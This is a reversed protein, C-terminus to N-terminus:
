QTARNLYSLVKFQGHCTYNGSKVKFIYVNESVDSAFGM